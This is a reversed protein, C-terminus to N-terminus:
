EATWTLAEDGADFDDGVDEFAGFRVRLGPTPDFAGSVRVLNWGTVFKASSDKRTPSKANFDLSETKELNSSRSSQPNM